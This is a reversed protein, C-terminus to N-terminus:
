NGRRKDNNRQRQQSRTARLASLLRRGIDHEDEGIIETPLIDPKHPTLVKFRGM